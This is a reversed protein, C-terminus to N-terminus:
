LSLLIDVRGNESNKSSFTGEIGVYASFGKVYRAKVTNASSDANQKITKVRLFEPSLPSLDRSILMGYSNSDTVLVPSLNKAHAIFGRRLLPKLNTV